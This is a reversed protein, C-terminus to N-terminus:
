DKSRAKRGTAKPKLGLEEAASEVELGLKDIDVTLLVGDRVIVRGDVIVDRVDGSKASFALYSYPNYVPIANPSKLAMIVIDARKGEKLGGIASEQHMAKAGNITASEFSQKANMVTLDGSADKQLLSAIKMAEFMDLLNSSAAGDTGLSVNIGAAMCKSIGAIGAGLKLNSLPCSAISASRRKFVKMDLDSLHVAHAAITENNIAGLGDLYVAIGDKASVGYTAKIEDAETSTEAVHTTNLIRYESGYKENLEQRKAEIDKLLQPGCTYPAHPSTAVRIRGEDRGHWEKVMAETKQLADGKTWEFVSHTAIGRIGVRYMASAESGAKDYFYMSVASTIGSTAMEAAGLTAGLEIHEPRLKAEAPWIREKLWSMLPLDEAYGRLLSMALHSHTDVLGPIVLCGSADITELREKCIKRIEGESAIMRIRRDEVLISSNTAVGYETIIFRPNRILITSPQPLRRYYSAM